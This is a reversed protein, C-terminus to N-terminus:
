IYTSVNVSTSVFNYFYSVCSSLIGLTIVGNRAANKCTQTPTAFPTILSCSDVVTGVVGQDAALNYCSQQGFCSNEIADVSGGNAAANQCVAPGHCSTQFLGIYGQNAAAGTCARPGKCSGKMSGIYGNQGADECSKYGEACSQFVSGINANRCADTGSCSGMFGTSADADRCVLGTFGDCANAGVCCGGVGYEDQCAEECTQTINDRNVGGVCDVTDKRKCRATKALLRSRELIGVDGHTAGDNHLSSEIASADEPQYEEQIERATRREIRRQQPAHSSFFVDTLCIM